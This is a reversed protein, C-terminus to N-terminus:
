GASRLSLIEGLLLYTQLILARAEGVDVDAHVGTATRDYLSRIAQNLRQYRSGNGIREYVYVRLRNRTQGAGVEIEQEGIHAPETRAPYIADAFSDMVRRCTSLAHSVAESGGGAALREYAQPLRDSAIEATDALLADVGNKYQTFIAAGISLNALRRCSIKLPYQPTTLTVGDGIITDGHLQGSFEVVFKYLTLGIINIPQGAHHTVEVKGRIITGTVVYDGLYYYQGEGGFIHGNELVVVGSALPSGQTVFNVAWLAEIM